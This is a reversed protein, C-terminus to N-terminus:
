INKIVSTLNREPPHPNNGELLEYELNLEEVKQELNRIKVEEKERVEGERDLFARIRDCKGLVM